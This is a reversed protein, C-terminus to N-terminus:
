ALRARSVNCVFVIRVPHRRTDPHQFYLDHLGERRPPHDPDNFLFFLAWDHLSGRAFAADWHAKWAARLDDYGPAHHAIVLVVGTVSTM